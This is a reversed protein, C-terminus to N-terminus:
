EVITFLARFYTVSSAVHVTRVLDRLHELLKREQNGRLNGHLVISDERYVM